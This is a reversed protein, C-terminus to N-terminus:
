KNRKAKAYSKSTVSNGGSKSSILQAHKASNEKLATDSSAYGARSRLAGAEKANHLKKPDTVKSVTFKGVKTIKKKSGGRRYDMTSKSM